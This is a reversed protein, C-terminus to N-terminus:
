GLNLHAHSQDLPMEPAITFLNLLCGGGANGTAQGGAPDNVDVWALTGKRAARSYLARAWFHCRLYWFFILWTPLCVTADLCSPSFSSLNLALM